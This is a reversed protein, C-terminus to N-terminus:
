VQLRKKYKLFIPLHHIFLFISLKISCRVEEYETQLKEFGEEEISKKVVEM